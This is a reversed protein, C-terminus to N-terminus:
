SWTRWGTVGWWTLYAAALVNLASVALAYTRVSRRLESARAAALLGLGSALPFLLTCLFMGVSWLTANGFRQILDEASVAFLIVPVVLSLSAVLPWVRVSFKPTRRLKGFLRRPIWVLGLLLTTVCGLLFAATTAIELWVLPAAVRRYSRPLLYGMREIAAPRGDPSDDVSALTAVPEDAGRFLTESVPVYRQASGLLPKITFSSDGVRVRAVGLLREIFYLGQQRPNDPRYWGAQARALRSLPAAPPPTPRPEDRTLYRRMLRSIREVAKGSGSNIMFAFGLGADPRYSMVTLGGNVGGDHGVWVYGSDIYTAVHLGYGVPLGARATLSSRPLEMREVGARPVLQHGRVAGRNLLFRVYAAMDQASANIAGAPRELIHWYPYPTKGDAHYLTALKPDPFYTATKMGIPLFLREHVLQEFPRGELKEAIYAAVPPGSNCYSVRTGPRWRSTRTRPTYDLGQRLTLASDNKAYDRLSLDDWGTSHELLNVIRVPDTREWRNHFAIEPAYQRVPDDLHLKGEQELLLVLLSVFAKSTSGIRFLTEATAGRGTAVDATGLGAVWLDSDRSVIAIGIGPTRTGTLVERIRAELEPVTRPPLQSDRAPAQACFALALLSLPAAPM